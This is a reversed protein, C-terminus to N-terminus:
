SANRRLEPLLNRLVVVFDRINQNQGKFYSDAKQHVALLWCAKLYLTKRNESPCRFNTESEIKDVLDDVARNNVM